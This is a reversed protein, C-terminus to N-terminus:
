DRLLAEIADCARGVGDEERVHRGISEARRAYAPDALLRRLGNAAREASYRRRPITRSIGLREVRQANDPQDHAFPVVLMPKGARMAQATTGIGGQHVNVAARPFLTAHPAYDIAIIDPSAFTPSQPADRGILLVARCGARAAAEASVEYFSGPTMVAASGLTFVVPPPGETLFAALQEPLEGSGPDDLFPFGTVVTHPPWDPQPQALLPSFFALVLYPSHGGIIPPSDMPPLDLERRMTDLPAFWPDIIRRALRHYLRWFWTGLFPARTLSGVRSIAPPDYVSLFYSPQLATSVWPIGRVEAVMPTAFTLLHSILLSAGEAAAFIDAYADRLSPLVWRKIVLESGRHEDMVHRMEARMADPDLIDPRVPAFDLGHGRVLPEYSASTAVVPDYGRTKLGQGIALYPYLDGLSGFTTLVIRARQEQNRRHVISGAQRLAPERV